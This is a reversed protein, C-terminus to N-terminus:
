ADDDPMEPREGSLVLGINLKARAALEPGKQTGAEEAADASSQFAVTIEQRPCDWEWLHVGLANMAVAAIELGHPSGAMYGARAAGRFLIESVIQARAGAADVDSVLDADTISPM